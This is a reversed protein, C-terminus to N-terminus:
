WAEFSLQELKPLLPQRRVSQTHVSQAVILLQLRTGYRYFKKINKYISFSHSEFRLLSFFFVRLSRPFFSRKKSFFSFFGQALWVTQSKMSEREKCRASSTSAKRSLERKEREEEAHVCVVDRSGGASATSVSKRWGALSVIILCWLVVALSDVVALILRSLSLLFSWPNQIRLTPSFSEIHSFDHHLMPSTMTKTQWRFFWDRKTHHTQNSVFNEEREGKERRFAWKPERVFKESARANARRRGADGSQHENSPVGLSHLCFYLELMAHLPQPLSTQLTGVRSSCLHFSKKDKGLENKQEWVNKGMTHTTTARLRM